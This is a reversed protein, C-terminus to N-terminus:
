SNLFNKILIVFIFFVMLIVLSTQSIDWHFKLFSIITSILFATPPKLFSFLCLQVPLYAQFINVVTLFNGLPPLSVLFTFSLNLDIFSLILLELDCRILIGPFFVFFPFPFRKWLFCILFKGFQHFSHIWLDLFCQDLLFLFSSLDLYVINFTGFM